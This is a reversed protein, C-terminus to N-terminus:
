DHRYEQELERRVLETIGYLTALVKAVTVIILIVVFALFPMAVFIRVYLMPQSKNM